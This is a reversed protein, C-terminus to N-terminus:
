TRKWTSIRLKAELGSYINQKIIELPNMKALIMANVDKEAINEPWCVVKYGLTVARELKKVTDKNRPENDYLIVANEKNSKLKSLESVIDGGASALSNPVFMSDIPGELCFYQKNFDVTDLGYVRPKDEDLLISIYRIEDKSDLARGQYGYFLDSRDIFPIVLRPGDHILAKESFKGSIMENTWAYFKPCYFLRFHLKVPIMRSDVYKRCPHSLPLQSVRKLDALPSDSIFKPGHLKDLFKQTENLKPVYDVEMLMEKMMDKYLSEDMFRLFDKFREHVSCKHCHFQLVNKKEYVYAKRKHTILNCHPCKFNWSNSSRKVSELRNSLLTMYKKELWLM